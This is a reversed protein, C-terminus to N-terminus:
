GSCAIRMKHLLEGKLTPNANRVPHHTSLYRYWRKKLSNCERAQERWHQLRREIRRLREQHQRARDLDFKRVLAKDAPSVKLGVSNAYRRNIPLRIAGPACDTDQYSIQGSAGACKYPGDARSMNCAITTVLICACLIFQKMALLMGKLRSQEM